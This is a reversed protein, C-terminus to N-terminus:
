VSFNFAKRFFIDRDNPFLVVLRGGPRLIRHIERIAIAPESLHEIVELFLVVDQSLDPVDLSYVDGWRAPLQLSECIAVNEQM